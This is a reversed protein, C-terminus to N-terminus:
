GGLGPRPLPAGAAHLDHRADLLLPLGLEARRRADRASLDYACGCHRGDAHVDPGQDRAGLTPDPRALPPGPHARARALPALLARHRRDARRRRRRRQCQRAGRGLIVQYREGASLTDARARPRWEIGLPIDSHLRVTTGARDRGGGSSGDVPTWVPEARAHDFPERVLERRPGGRPM